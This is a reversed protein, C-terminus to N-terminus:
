KKVVPQAAAGKEMFKFNNKWRGDPVREMTIIMGPFSSGKSTLHGIMNAIGKLIRENARVGPENLYNCTMESCDVNTATSGPAITMDVAGFNPPIHEVIAHAIEQLYPLTNPDFLDKNSLM